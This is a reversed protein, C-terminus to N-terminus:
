MSVELLNSRPHGISPNRTPGQPRFKESLGAHGCIVEYVKLGIVHAGRAYKVFCSNHWAPDRRQRSYLNSTWVLRKLAVFNKGELQQVGFIRKIVENLAKELGKGASNSPPVWSPTLPHWAGSGTGGTYKVQGPSRCPCGLLTWSIGLGQVVGSLHGLLRRVFAGGHYQQRPLSHCRLREFVHSGYWLRRDVTLAPRGLM